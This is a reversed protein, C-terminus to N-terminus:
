NITRKPYQPHLKFLALQEGRNHIRSRRFLYRAYLKGEELLYSADKGELYYVTPINYNICAGTCMLCPEFTSILVLKHHDLSLFKDYGMSVIASSIANIEAHGGALHNRIITNYGEGIIAQDYLLIAGVPIDMTELSKKALTQLRTLLDGKLEIRRRFWSFKQALIVLFLPILVAGLLMYLVGSTM